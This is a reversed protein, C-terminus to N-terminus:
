RFINFKLSHYIKSFRKNITYHCGVIRAVNEKNVIQGIKELYKIAGLVESESIERGTTNHPPVLSDVLNKYWFPIDKFSHALERHTLHNEKAFNIFNNPYNQFLHYVMATLFFSKYIPLAKKSDYNDSRKCLKKYNKLLPFKDLKLKEKRDLLWSLRTFSEFVFLSNIKQKNILFYGKELGTEFWKIAKLGYYFHSTLPYTLTLRLDRGCKSCYCIEDVDKLKSLTIKEHCCGCRDTLFIKHKPCANYFFYRWKKRFYPIEDEALCKPCFMLGYHTRKDVLKRIQKPPYLCNNCTFLHGEESRLSMKLINLRDFGSKITLADLLKEDYKFDIDKSSICNGERKVFLTLFDSLKRKHVLATRTLWSSLLEDKLPKPIILFFYDQVWNKNRRQKKM